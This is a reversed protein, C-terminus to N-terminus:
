IKRKRLIISFVLSILVIISIIVLSSSNNKEEPAFGTNPLGPTPIQSKVVIDSKVITPPIVVTPIVAAPVIIPEIVQKIVVPSNNNSIPTVIPLATTNPSSIVPASWCIWDYYSASYDWGPCSDSRLISSGGGGSSWGWTGSGSSGSSSWNSVAIIPPIFTNIVTCTKDDNGSLIVSGSSNCDGSFSQSYLSNLNESVDYTGAALSYLTWPSGTWVSPTWADIWLNKVSMTFDSPISTGGIVQKIVHLTPNATPIRIINHDLTTQAQALARWNLAANTQLIIQKASLITWNFISTTWLTAGTPGWVQWFINSANAWGFLKIQTASAISLDGSIQFIWVDNANGSLTIDTAINVDTSWKYLGPTFILWGISWANLETATPITRGAADTYAAEMDSVATTLLIPDTTVCPLPWTADVSYINWTVEVCTLGIAAGTIPSAWVNGTIISTPVDTIATKSLIAFSSISWLNVPTPGAAFITIQWILGFILLTTYDLGFHM